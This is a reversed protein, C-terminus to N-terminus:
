FLFLSVHSMRINPPFEWDSNGRSFLGSLGETMGPDFQGRALYTKPWRPLSVGLDTVKRKYKSLPM